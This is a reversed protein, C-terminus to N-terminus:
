LFSLAKKENENLLSKDIIKLDAISEIKHEIHNIFLLM